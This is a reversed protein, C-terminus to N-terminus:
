MPCADLLENFGQILRGTKNNLYALDRAINTLDSELNRARDSEHVLRQIIIPRSEEDLSSELDKIILGACANLALTEDMWAKVPLQELQEIERQSQETLSASCQADAQTLQQRLKALHHNSQDVRKLIRVYNEGLAHYREFVEDNSWNCTPPTQISPLRQSVLQQSERWLAAPDHLWEPKLFWLAAGAAALLILVVLLRKLGRARPRSPPEPAAREATRAPQPPIDPNTQVPPLSPSAPESRAAPAPEEALPADGVEVGFHEALPQLGGVFGQAIARLKWGSRHRYLEAFILAQEDGAGDLQFLLPEGSDPRATLQAGSLDRFCGQELTAAFVCREISPALADLQVRFDAAGAANTTLAIAGSPARTQNYFIFWSDDLVRGDADVAFCAADLAGRQPNWRLEIHVQGTSAVPANAGKSLKRM